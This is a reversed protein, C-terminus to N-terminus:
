PTREWGSVGGRANYSGSGIKIDITYGAPVVLGSWFGQRHNQNASVKAVVTSGNRIALEALGNTSNISAHEIVLQKGTAVTHLTQWTTSTSNDYADVYDGAIAREGAEVPLNAAASVPLTISEEISTQVNGAASLPDLIEVASTEIPLTVDFQERRVDRPDGYIVLEVWEGPQATWSFYLRSFAIERFGEGKVLQVGEGEADDFFVVINAANSSARRVRIFRGPWDRVRLSEAQDLRLTKISVPVNLAM